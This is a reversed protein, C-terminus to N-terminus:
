LSAPVLSLLQRTLAVYQAAERELSTFRAVRLKAQAAMRQRWSQDEWARIALDEFESPSTFVLGNEGHSVLARNGPNDRVIVLTGLAMAELVTNSQGESVSTNLVFDSQRMADLLQNRPLPGIIKVNPSATSVENLKSWLAADLAPGVVVLKAGIRKDLGDRFRELVFLPDKVERVGLPLLFLPCAGWGLVKRFDFGSPPSLLVSQPVHCITAAVSPAIQKARNALV